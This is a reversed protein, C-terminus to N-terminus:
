STALEMIKEETIGDGSLTGQIKGKNFVVVRDCISLLEPLESSVMIVVKGSDALERMIRYIESKSGIDIGKTPEDFILMKADSAMWKGIIVKQQNGGSLETINQKVSRAKVSLNSTQVSAIDFDNKRNIIGGIGGKTSDKIGRIFTINEEITFNHFFGTERRNETLLGIGSKIVQYPNKNNVTENYLLIEGSSLPVAGFIAEMLETRGSGVLGAFGLVEGKKVFFSVDKIKQDRRTINKAEFIIESQEFDHNSLYRNQVERGVMMKILENIEVNGIERTGVYKGDKLVSVRTGIKKLEDMKHSIYVIGHGEKQLTRIIEFLKEVEENTLSSTPEDMIIVKADFAIAKAIEVVQKESISLTEVLTEPNKNLGLKKLIESARKNMRERDVIEIGFKKRTLLKGMFINETISLQGCLSLEQYIISIGHEFSEKPTLRSYNKGEIIIEGSTPEYAGSLIKMLTSKGAGNEGLLIHVEGQEVTFSINELAVVGPFTKTINKMEVLTKM